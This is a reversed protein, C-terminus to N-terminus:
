FDPLGEGCMDGDEDDEYIIMKCLYCDVGGTKISECVKGFSKNFEKKNLMEDKRNNDTIWGCFMAYVSAKKMRNKVKDLKPLADYETKTPIVLTEEAFEAVIDNDAIYGKMANIMVKSPELSEGNYWRHAGECFLNFFQNLKNMQLDKIYATNDATVEFKANFPILKIRKLIAVDEVDIKPKHNTNWTLKCHTEFEVEHGYLQRAKIPDDGTITKIRKSNLVEKKDSEPLSGCRAFLLSMLEPSAGKSTKKVTLDESLTTSFKGLINKMINTISSKGNCGEGFYIHICRESIEGTMHYGNMRIMYDKLEKDNCTVDDFFKEACSTDLDPDYECLCEFSWYDDRM